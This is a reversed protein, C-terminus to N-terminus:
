RPLGSGRWGGHDAVPRRHARTPASWESPRPRTPSAPARLFALVAVVAAIEEPTADPNVVRLLPAPAGTM